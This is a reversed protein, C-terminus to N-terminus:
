ALLRGRGNLRKLILGTFAGTGAGLEVVTADSGFDCSDVVARALARSSPWVAGVRLPERAFASVFRLPSDWERRWLAHGANGQGNGNRAPAPTSKRYVSQASSKM